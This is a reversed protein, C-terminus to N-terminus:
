KMEEIQTKIKFFEPHDTMGLMQYEGLIRECEILIDEANRAPSRAAKQRPKRESKKQQLNSM